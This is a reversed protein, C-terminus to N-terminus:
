LAELEAVLQELERRPLGPGQREEPFPREPRVLEWTRPGVLSRAREPERELEVGHDRSLRTEAIERVLPRLEVHVDIASTQANRVRREVARLQELPQEEDAAPPLLRRFSPERPLEMRLRRVLVLAGLGGLFLVYALLALGDAKGALELALAFGFTAVLLLAFVQGSKV